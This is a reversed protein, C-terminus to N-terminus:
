QHTPKINKQSKDWLHSHWKFFFYSSFLTSLSWISSHVVFYQDTNTFRLAFTSTLLSTRLKASVQTAITCTRHPTIHHKNFTHPPHTACIRQGLVGRPTLLPFWSGRRKCFAQYLRGGCSCPCRKAYLSHLLTTCIRQALPHPM